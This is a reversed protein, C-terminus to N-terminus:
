EEPKKEPKFDFDLKQSLLFEEQIKLARERQPATLKWLAIFGIGGLLSALSLAFGGMYHDNQWLSTVFYTIVFGLGLSLFIIGFVLSYRGPISRLLYRPIRNDNPNIGHKILEVNQLYEFRAKFFTTLLVMAFAGLVVIGVIMNQSM